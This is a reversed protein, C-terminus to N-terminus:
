RTSHCGSRTPWGARSSPCAPIESAARGTRRARASGAASPRGSTRNRARSRPRQAPSCGNRGDPGPLRRPDSRGTTRAACRRGAVRNRRGRGVSGRRVCLRNAAVPVSDSARKAPHRRGHRDDRAVLRYRGSARCRLRRASRRARARAGPAGPLGTDAHACVDEAQPPDARHPLARVRSRRVRVVRRTGDHRRVGVPWPCPLVNVANGDKAARDVRGCVTAPDSADQVV